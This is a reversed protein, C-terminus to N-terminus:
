ALSGQLVTLKAKKPMRATLWELAKDHPMPFAISYGQVQDCGIAMLSNLEAETEAGEAVISIGLGRALETIARVIKSNDGNEHINQVFRRDIKLRDIENPNVHSLSAYGTGFDDLELHVGAARIHRLKAAIGTKEDDLIVSEVIELSLKQPPLGAKELTEFLFADFDHERLETGSVNVALRGFAIGARNWEAAENIAKTIVIRGIEPMFGCKEAVPIFEGPPIMGREAHNWRVLAEIGSITGHTLSVQPQFYVQFAREAIAVKIDHELQKRYDLERRLEESFFSFNGGGLKKASYLALDAHVLLDGANDADIPYVAIGASAGPLITTGQFVIPENIHALIRRALMNIDETGGAGGLIMVFEDGGLRVCLDSARCSDRMRQATVVLVYDGAAHGLTDNIQKFRDLDLQVVALRERRRHTGKILTDFHDTLFTRNHLGTLGDHVAIFAMSNRADILEHTKRLIANSMPRFIFLAVLIIVGITAYFLTRHLALLKESRDDADATIRQGLAAYGSLTANAVSADLNVREDGGKYGGNGSFQSEYASILRDGNAILGVSFYDLHFPKAFLVSEISKPDLKAPSQPDAGTQDLLLDYNTEFEATAQKLASVLAPQKDRSGAGTAGALFVIRQSLTKQTSVIDLLTHNHQQTAMMQQLLIFSAIVMAAIILLALWYGAKILLILKGSVTQVPQQSM